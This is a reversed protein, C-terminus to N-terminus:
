LVGALAGGPLPIQLLHAFLEYSAVGVGLALGADRLPHASGLARAALWFMLAGSLPWGIVEILLINAVFAGVLLGVTRWDPPTGLEIDEGAEAEGHSGRLVDVAHAIAILCLGIGLFVPVARPGVPGRGATDPAITTASVLVTVGFVLLFASLGLEPDAVRARLRTLTRTRPREGSPVATRAVQKAGVTSV